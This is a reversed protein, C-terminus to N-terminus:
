ERGLRVEWGRLVGEGDEWHGSFSHTNTGACVVAQAKSVNTVM